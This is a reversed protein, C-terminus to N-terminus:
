FTFTAVAVENAMQNGRSGKAIAVSLDFFEIWRLNM